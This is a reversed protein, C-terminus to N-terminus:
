KGALASERSLLRAVLLLALATLLAPLAYSQLLDLTPLREGRLARSLLSYQGSVPIWAIWAPDKKQLFMPLLPIIAVFTLLLSVNAQAEKFTRGRVGVYLMVAPMLAALPVLVIVFRLLETAGFLFPIGVAPLPAFRLTLYFGALTLVVVAADLAAVAAWKGVALELPSAPTTLLPELSQREREGATADLAAALGGMLAAFLGYYAVLFLVLSSSSQPTALDHEEIQLPSAADPAVGRLLLRERGWERNWNRLLSEAQDISARARDRSRDYFLRVTAPKGKAIDAAFAPDVELAVDLDGARVQAEFDAPATAVKVQQRELFAILAPAYEGGAVPLKLERAKDSQNAVLHVVLVLILPGFLAPMLTVLFTRRDRLTDVIEKVAITAIRSLASDTREAKLGDGASM